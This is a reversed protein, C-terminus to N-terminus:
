ELMSKSIVCNHQPEWLKKGHFKVFSDFSLSWLITIKRYNRQLIIGKNCSESIVSDMGISGLCLTISPSCQVHVPTAGMVCNGMHTIFITHM